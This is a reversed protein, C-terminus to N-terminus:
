IQLHYDASFVLCRILDLLIQFSRHLIPRLIQFHFRFMVLAPDQLRIGRIRNCLNQIHSHPKSLVRAIEPTEAGINRKNTKIDRDKKCSSGLQFGAKNEKSVQRQM